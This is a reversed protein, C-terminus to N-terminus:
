TARRGPPLFFRQAIAPANEGHQKRHPEGHRELELADGRDRGQQLRFEADANGVDAQQDPEIERRADRQRQRAARDALSEAVLCGHECGEHQHQAASQHHHKGLKPAQLDRPPQDGAAAAHEEIHLHAFITVSWNAPL